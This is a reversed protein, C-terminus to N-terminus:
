GSCRNLWAKLAQEASAKSWTPVSWGSISTWSFPTVEIYTINKIRQVLEGPGWGDAGYFSGGSAYVGGQIAELFHSFHQSM